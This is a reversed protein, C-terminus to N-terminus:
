LKKYVRVYVGEMSKYGCKDRTEGNWECECREAMYSSLEGLSTVYYTGADQGGDQNLYM